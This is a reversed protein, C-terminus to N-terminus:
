CLRFRRTCSLPLQVVVAALDHLVAMRRDAAQPTMPYNAASFGMPHSRPSPDQAPAVWAVGLRHISGQDKPKGASFASTELVNKTWKLRVGPPRIGLEIAAQRTGM